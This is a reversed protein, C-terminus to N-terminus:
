MALRHGTRPTLEPIHLARHTGKETVVCVTVELRIYERTQASFYCVCRGELAHHTPVNATVTTSDRGHLMTKVVRGLTGWARHGEQSIEYHTNRLSELVALKDQTM